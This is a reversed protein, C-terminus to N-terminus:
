AITVHDSRKPKRKRQYLSIDQKAQSIVRRITRTQKRQRAIVAEASGIAQSDSHSFHSVGGAAREAVWPSVEAFKVRRGLEFRLLYDFATGVLQPNKSRPAVRIAGLSRSTTPRFVSLRKCVEPRQVFRKLSM